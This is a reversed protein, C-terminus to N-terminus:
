TDHRGGVLGLETRLRAQWAAMWGPLAAAPMPRAIFWGQALHCGSRRLFNWDARDEVGEAVMEMGLHRAMELSAEYIACRTEDHWAGTVFSRDVKLQTFPIDRLQSLSSHGTGFDDISLRFRKLRLRAFIDLATRMDGMLRSETIELVVDEAPIGAAAVQRAIVDPLDLMGLNDMSLNIAMRLRLGQARWAGAQALAADLVTHTLEDILGHEEAIGIFEDPFVLGDEPHDWRILAEVGEVAGTALSVTPQYHNVFQRARIATRLADPTYIRRSGRAHASATAGLRDLLPRLEAPGAPKQLSGLVALGHERVLREVTQLTREDEGSLLIVGGAYRQEALRRVFEVGDMEPMNLDCILLPPTFTGLRALAESGSRAVEVRAVGLHRLLSEMQQLLVTDDDVVLVAAIEESVHLPAAPAFAAPASWASAAAARVAELAARLGSLGEGDLTGPTAARAQRERQEALRAYHLAGVARAASKQRHMEQMWLEADGAEALRVLGAEAARLFSDLLARAQAEDTSGLSAYLCELALAQTEAVPAAHPAPASAGELVRELASRLGDLTLPKVLVDDMGADRCRQLEDAAAAATIGVVPVHGGHTQEHQRVARTLELGDLIPMNLDTLILDHKGARWHELAAAGDAVIEAVYGLRDLQQRLVSQNPPYDEAVLIRYGLSGGTSIDAGLVLPPAAPENWAAAPLRVHFTSGAGPYTDLRISGGMAEVLQRTIVLGIGTGEVQGMEAGLRNFPQFLQRQQEASLGAGTDCVAIDVHGAADVDCTVRVWGGEHNYKVANSVLNNLVQLLRLRDGRVYVEACGEGIALRVRRAAAAASNQSRCQALVRSLEVTELRLEMHGAEVRALDLIGNVLGLLHEGARRIDGANEHLSASAGEEMEMLQAYGLIANLPTRLEHSMSALFRSKTRSAEEAAEKAQRLEATRADVRQELEANLRQLAAQAQRMESIDRFVCLLYQRGAEAMAMITVRVDILTGDQCRHRSEFDDRGTRLIREIRARIVDETDVAEYATVPLRAFAEATYGLQRHVASNFAVPLATAPDIMVVGDPLLEFLAQFRAEARRADASPLESM